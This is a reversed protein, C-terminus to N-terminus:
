GNVLIENNIKQLLDKAKRDFDPKKTLLEELVKKAKLNHKKLALCYALYYSAESYDPWFFKVFRFRFIADSLNGKEIHKFGLQMNTDLLNKFKVRMVSLEEVSDKLKISVFNSFNNSKEKAFNALSEVKGEKKEEPKFGFIRKISKM